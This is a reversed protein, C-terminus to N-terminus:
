CLRNLLRNGFTDYIGYTDNRSTKYFDFSKQPILTFIKLVLTCNIENLLPLHYFLIKSLHLGVVCLYLVVLTDM